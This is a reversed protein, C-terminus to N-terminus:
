KKIHRRGLGLLSFLGIGLLLLTSPEPVPNMDEVYFVADQFDGLSGSGASPLSEFALLWDNNSKATVTMGNLGVATKVQSGENVLYSLGLINDGSEPDSYGTGAANKSQQTYSKLGSDSNEWFFGFSHGFNADMLSGDIYLAGGDDVTFGGQADSNGMLLYEAGTQASYVGLSGNNGQVMSVLYSDVNAESPTWLEVDSQDTEANMSGKTFVDDFVDQLSNGETDKGLSLAMASGVIFLVSLVSVVTIAFIKRMCEGGNKLPPLGATEESLGTAKRGRRVVPKAKDRRQYNKFYNTFVNV